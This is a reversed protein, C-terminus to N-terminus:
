IESRNWCWQPMLRWRGPNTIVPNIDIEKLLENELGIGGVNTIRYGM